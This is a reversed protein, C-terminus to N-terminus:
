EEFYDSDLRKVEYTAVKTVGVGADIMLGALQEGDILVIRSDIFSAYEIAESSFNSTTLFIGKKARQGQLAGAFKQIEPRGVTGDWRKAQLYIVDLGLRDEKIVGDIGGDGSKGLTQGADKRSGGYGMSVLLEVVLREFFAPSASKIKSILEEELEERVQQYGFEIHESPTLSDTEVSTATASSADSKESKSGSQFEKYEDFQRLYAMNIPQDQALADLGRQKIRYKARSPAEILGAGKLHSKAWGIRNDFLRAYGSPLMEALEDETLEFHQALYENTERNRRIEGDALHELLPRM